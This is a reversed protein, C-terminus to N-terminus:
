LKNYDYTEEVGMVEDVYTLTIVDGNIVASITIPETGLLPVYESFVIESGEVVYSFSGYYMTGLLDYMGTGDSNFSVSYVITMGTMPHVFEYTYTGFIGEEEEGSQSVLVGQEYGNYLCVLEYNSNLDFSATPMSGDAKSVSLFGDVLSYVVEENIAPVGWSENGPATILCTGSSAGESEPTFVYVFEGFMGSEFTYTGQLLTTVDPAEEVVVTLEATYSPDVASTLVVVYTGPKTAMFYHCEWGSEISAFESSEKLEVTYTKDAGENVLACFDVQVNPYVSVTSQEVYDYWSSDYVGVVFSSVAAAEISIKFTKIVNASTLVVTYVGPTNGNLTLIGDYVSGYVDWTSIGDADLVDVSIVDVNPDATEPKRNEIYFSSESGMQVVAISEEDMVNGEFDVIDFSEFYFSSAPYPNVATREGTLQAASVRRSYDPYEVNEAKGIVTGFEDVIVKDESNFIDITIDVQELSEYASLSFSVTVEYYSFGEMIIDFGFNYTIHSGCSPCVSVYSIFDIADEQQGLEYLSQVASEIGYIDLAYSLLSSLNPGALHASEAYVSEFVMEDNWDLYESLGFVSGDSLEEYYYVESVYESDSEVHTYGNGFEYGYITTVGYEDYSIAGAFVHSQNNLAAELAEDVEEYDNIYVIVPYSASLEGSSVVAEYVGSSVFAGSVENEEEDVLKVTYDSAKVEYIENGSVHYVVVGESSFSQGVTYNTCANSADVMLNAAVVKNSVTVQYSTTAEKYSVIVAYTGAVEFEQPETVKADATVDLTTGDSLQAVVSLDGKDFEDGVVFETKQGSVELEKVTVAGTTSCSAITIIGLLLVLSLIFKKM